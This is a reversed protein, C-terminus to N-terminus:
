AMRRSRNRSDAPVPSNAYNLAGVAARYRRVLDDRGATALADLDLANRALSESLVQARGEEVAIKM